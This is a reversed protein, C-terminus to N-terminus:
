RRIRVDPGSHLCEEGGQAPRGAPRPDLRQHVTAEMPGTVDFVAEAEVDALDPASGVPM